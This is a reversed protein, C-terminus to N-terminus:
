LLLLKCAFSLTADAVIRLGNGNAYKLILILVSFMLLECCLLLVLVSINQFCLLISPSFHNFVSSLFSIFFLFSFNNHSSLPLHLFIFFFIRYAYINSTHPLFFGGYKKKSRERSQLFHAPATITTGNNIAICYLIGAVRLLM